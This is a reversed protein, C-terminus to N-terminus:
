VTNDLCGKCLSRGVDLAVSRQAALDIEAIPTRCYFVLRRSGVAVLQVWEGPLARCVPWCRGALKLTGTESLRQIEAGNAYEWAPPDAVYPRASPRWVSAPTKMGLAEHPRVQNYEQRFADLWAQRQGEEAPLGRRRRAAELSGHFREVKGQTQPHRVGSFWCRIGQKMLWVTLQTWGGAANTNWWPTGHDMLMAEPLGCEGFAEELARRVGVAHASGLAQLAIAYRSHDDVISLPGVAQNWGKPSKFDMQWLENPAERQFRQEAQQWRDQARVLHYRLLIRHITIVPLEMGEGRLLVQLKRAGWDPRLQRLKVVRLEQEAPTRRPSHHPRRSGEQVARAGGSQYRGLWHYGTPRSIGFEECLSSLSQARKAAQVVFRIRQEGVEVRNWAM